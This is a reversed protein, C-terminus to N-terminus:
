RRGGDHNDVSSTGAPADIETAAADIPSAANDSKRNRFLAIAAARAAASAPPADTRPKPHLQVPPRASVVPRAPLRKLRHALFGGPRAIADPWTAGRAAMDANFAALIQRGTWSQLDLHSGMLADCLHGPHVRDLGVSGAAIEAAIQQVTLPRPPQENRSSKRARAASPRASPSNKLVHSSRRDSRSPPLHCFRTKDVPRRASILHWVSPRRRHSPTASSGTGRTIEVALGSEALLMRVTTVTRVSCGAAHAVAANTVACHRGTAHDARAALAAAVALLTPIRVHLRSRAAAGTESAAWRELDAIWCARSIWM